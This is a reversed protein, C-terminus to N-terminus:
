RVSWPSAPRRASRACFRCPPRPPAWTRAPRGNQAVLMMVQMTLGIGFGILLLVAVLAPAGTGPHVLGLLALGVAALATGVVPFVEYRGTRSISRGSLTITVVGAMLCTLALGARTASTGM